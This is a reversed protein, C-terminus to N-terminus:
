VEGKEKPSPGAVGPILNRAVLEIKAACERM